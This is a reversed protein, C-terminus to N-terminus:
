KKSLSFANICSIIWFPDKRNNCIMHYSVIFFQLLNFCSVFERLDEQVNWIGIYCFSACLGALQDVARGQPSGSTLPSSPDM